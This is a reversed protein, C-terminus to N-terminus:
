IETTYVGIEEQCSIPRYLVNMAEGTVGGMVAHPLHDIPAVVSRQLFCGGPRLPSFTYRGDTLLITAAGCLGLGGLSVQYIPRFANDLM